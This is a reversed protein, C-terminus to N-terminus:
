SLGPLRHARKLRSFFSTPVEDISMIAIHWRKFDILMNAKWSEHHLEAIPSHRSRLRVRKLTAVQGDTASLLLRCFKEFSYYRDLAIAKVDGGSSSGAEVDAALQLTM